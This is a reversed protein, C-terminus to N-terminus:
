NVPRTYKGNLSSNVLHLFSCFRLCLSSTLSRLVEGVRMGGRATLELLLRNRVNTTKFIMEDITEKEFITWQIEKSGRFLERLMQTECPNPITNDRTNKILNFFANRLSYRHRKTTQRTNESLQTM